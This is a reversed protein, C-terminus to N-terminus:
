NKILFYREYKNRFPSQRIYGLMQEVFVKNKLYGGHMVQIGYMDYDHNGEILVPGQPTIGVDWGISNVKPFVRHAQCVLEKLENWFPIEIGEFAVGTDPHQIFENLYRDKGIGKLRGSIHDIPVSIGGVGEAATINDVKRDGRGLRIYANLNIINGDLCRLTDIRITNVAHSYIVAMQPHQKLQREILLCKNHHQSLYGRLENLLITHNDGFNVIASQQDTSFFLIGRGCSTDRSPKIVYYGDLNNLFEAEDIPSDDLRFYGQGRSFYGIPEATPLANEMLIRKFQVKDNCFDKCSQDNVCDERIFNMLRGPLYYQLERVDYGKTYAKYRFYNHPWYKQ